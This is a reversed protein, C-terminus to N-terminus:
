SLRKGYSVNYKSDILDKLLRRHCQEDTKEYCLLTIIESKARRALEKLIDIQKEMEKVYRKTYESFDVKQKKWDRLLEKSPAVEKIWEDYDIKKWPMQYRAVLLRTGDEPEREAYVSKTKIM